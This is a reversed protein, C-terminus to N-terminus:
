ELIISWNTKTGVLALWEASTSGDNAGVSTEFAKNVADLSLTISLGTATSSLQNLASVISEKNLLSSRGIYLSGVAIESMFICKVLAVCGAFAGTLSTQTSPYFEDIIELNTCGFFMNAMGNFGSTTNRVDIKKLKTVGSNKFMERATLATSLDLKDTYLSEGINLAEYFMLDARKITKSTDWAQMIQSFTQEDFPAKYFAYNYSTGSVAVARDQIVQTFQAVIASTDGGGGGQAAGAEYGANYVLPVNNAITQLDTAISM